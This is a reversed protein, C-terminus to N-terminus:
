TIGTKRAILSRGMVYMKRLGFMGHRYAMKFPYTPRLYFRKIINNWERTIEDGTMGSDYLLKKAMFDHRYAMWDDDVLGQRDLLDYLRSGPYPTIVGLSLQDVDLDLALELSKRESEVTSGPLGMVFFLGIYFGYDKALKVAERIQEITEGKDIRELVKGDGSEVGFFICYVGADRMKRFLEPTVRDARIGNPFAISVDWGREKIGDFIRGARDMDLTFTDDVIHIERYRYKSEVLEEVEALVNDPSRDRFKSGFTAKCCFICQHPCGRSTIISAMPKRKVEVAKTDYKRLDFIDRAPFPIADLDEIFPRDGNRVIKTKGRYVVGKVGMMSDGDSLRQALEKITEEGEGVVGYDIWGFQKLTDEPLASIHAGGLITKVGPHAEKIKKLLGINDSIDFTRSTALVADARSIGVEDVVRSDPYGNVRGDIVEVEHGEGRLVSALYGVGLPLYQIESRREISKPLAFAFKM